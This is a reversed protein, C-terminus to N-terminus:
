SAGAIMMRVISGNAPATAGLLTLNLLAVYVGSSKTVPVTLTKNSNSLVPTGFCHPAAGEEATFQVSDLDPGNTFFADGTSLGNKTLHFVANGGSVTAKFPFIKKPKNLIQSVGTTSDWDSNVQAAPISPKNLIQSVGSSSNWDSNVQGAPIIPKNLIQSVGSSANWDSNIQAAPISPKNLIRTVGSSANWDSPQQASPISPFAAVTGDGRVYQSTNGTFKSQKGNLESEINTCRSKLGTIDTEITGCRSILANKSAEMDDAWNLINNEIQQIVAFRDLVQRYFSGTRYTANMM